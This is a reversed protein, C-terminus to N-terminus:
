PEAAAQKSPNQTRVGSLCPLTDRILTTHLGTSTEAEEDIPSRRITIHRLIIIFIRYNFLRLRSPATDGSFITEGWHGTFNMSRITTMMNNLCSFYFMYAVLKIKTNGHM